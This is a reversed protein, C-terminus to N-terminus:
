QILLMKRTLVVGNATELRYIYMGSAVRAGSDSRGSWTATYRGIQREGEVLTAVKQGLVSYVVLTVSGTRPVEFHISTEPNFPNPYNQELVYERPIGLNRQDEVGTTPEPKVQVVSPGNIFDYEITFSPGEENIQDDPLYEETDWIFDGVSYVFPRVRPGANIASRPVSIEMVNDDANIAVQAVGVSDYIEESGGYDSGYHYITM